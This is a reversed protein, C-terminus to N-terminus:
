PRVEEPIAAHGTLEFSSHGPAPVYFPVGSNQYADYDSGFAHRLRAEEHRSGVVLYLTAAVNFALLRTTM